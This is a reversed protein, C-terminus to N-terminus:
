IKRRVSRDAAAARAPRLSYPQRGRGLADQQEKEQRSTARAVQVNRKCRSILAILIYILEFYAMSLAATTVVYIVLSIQLMRGLDAAWALSANGRSLRIIQRCNWLGVGLMSLFVVLGVFGLDGLVEFYSSHAAHPFDDAPPTTVFDLLYLFPKYSEWVSFRQVAHMGGGFFPHDMAILWSIKWAVVRGMFSADNDSSAITSLRDFWTAPALSYIMVSAVAVFFLSSVKRRSNKVFFAGLVMLGVFGGRSFTMVVTIISLGLAMLLSIRVVRMASWLALYYFLPITMLLATALSNNDGISGTGVIKHGGVTLVSILGEKVGLFGLSLTIAFVLLNIRHRTTTVAMVTFALVVEKLLKEYLNTADPASVVPDLWSITAAMSLLCLLLSTADFYPDKKERSVVVLGLTIVAVIKNFPVDAMVGYLLENPSLLAVWVWLVVGIQASLICLPLLATWVLAFLFDRM